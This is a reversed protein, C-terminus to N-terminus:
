SPTLLRERIDLDVVYPIKDKGIISWGFFANEEDWPYPLPTSKEGGWAMLAPSLIVLLLVLLIATIRM